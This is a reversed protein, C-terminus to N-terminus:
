FAKLYWHRFRPAKSLASDVKPDGTKQDVIANYQHKFQGVAISITAKQHASLETTQNAPVAAVIANIMLDAATVLQEVKYQTQQNKIQGAAMLSDLQSKLNDAIVVVQQRTSQANASNINAILQEIQAVGQNVIAEVKAALAAAEPAETAIIINAATEVVPLLTNVYGQITKLMTSSCAIMSACLAIVIASRTIYKM